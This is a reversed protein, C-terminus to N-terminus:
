AFVRRRTLAMMTHFLLSLHWICYFNIMVQREREHQYKKNCIMMYIPELRIWLSRRTGWQKYNKKEIFKLYMKAMLLTLVKKWNNMKKQIQKMQKFMHRQCENEICRKICQLVHTFEELIKVSKQTSLLKFNKVNKKIEFKFM